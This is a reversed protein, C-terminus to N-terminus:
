NVSAAVATFAAEYINLKMGILIIPRPHLTLPQLKVVEEYTALEHGGQVVNVVDILTKLLIM